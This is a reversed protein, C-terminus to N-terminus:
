SRAGQPEVQDHHTTLALSTHWSWPRNPLQTRVCRNGLGRACNEQRPCREWKRGPNGVETLLTKSRTGNRSNGRDRGEPAHKPYGLHDEMEVEFVTKTLGTLLGGPGVLAAGESRAREVFEGALEGDAPVSVEVPTAEDTVVAGKALGEAPL